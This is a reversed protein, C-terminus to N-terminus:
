SDWRVIFTVDTNSPIPYPTSLKGVLLLQDADNYLGITTAYPRFDSGTAFDEYQGFSGSKIASPNLTYNFDNENIRCRVSNEYITSEAAFSMTFLSPNTTIVPM